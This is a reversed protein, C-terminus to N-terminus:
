DLDDGDLDDGAKAGAHSTPATKRKPKIPADEDVGEELEDLDMEEVEEVLDDPYQESTEFKDIDDYTGIIAGGCVPCNKLNALDPSTYGCESCIFEDAM